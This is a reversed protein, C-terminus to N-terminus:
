FKYSYTLGIAGAHSMSFAVREQLRVREWREGPSALGAISGAIAGAGGLLVGFILAKDVATFRIFGDRDDGSALGITVGAGGGIAMGIGAGRIARAGASRAGRSLELRQLSNFPLRLNESSEPPHVVLTDGTLRLVIFIGTAAEASVRVRDGERLLQQAQALGASSAAALVLFCLLIRSMALRLSASLHPTELMSMSTRSPVRSKEHAVWPLIDRVLKKCADTGAPCHGHPQPNSYFRPKNKDSARSIGGRDHSCHRRVFRTQCGETFRPLCAAVRLASRCFQSIAVVEFYFLRPLSQRPAPETNAPV